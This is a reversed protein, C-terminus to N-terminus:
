HVCLISITLKLGLRGFIFISQDLKEFRVLFEVTWGVVMYKTKEKGVVDSWGDVYCSM